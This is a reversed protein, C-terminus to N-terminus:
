QKHAELRTDRHYERAIVQTTGPLVEVAYASKVDPGLLWFNGVRNIAQHAASHYSNYGFTTAAYIHSDPIDRLATQCDNVFRANVRLDFHALVAPPGHAAPVFTLNAYIDTANTQRLKVAGAASSTPFIESLPLSGNWFQAYKGMLAFVPSFWTHEGNEFRMAGTWTDNIPTPTAAVLDNPISNLALMRAANQWLALNGGLTLSTGPNFNSRQFNGNNAAQTGYLNQYKRPGNVDSTFLAETMNATTAVTCIARLRTLYLNLNPILRTTPQAFNYTADTFGPTPPLVVTVGAFLDNADPRFASLARFAAVLPGPIWLDAYPFMKEFTQLFILADPTAIGAADMARFIQVYILVTFYMQSIPPVWGSCNETWKRTNCMLHDMYNLILFFASLNPVFTSVTPYTLDQFPNNAATKFILTEFEPAAPAFSSKPPGFSKKVTFRDSKAKSATRDRALEADREAALDRGQPVTAPNGIVPNSAPLDQASVVQDVDTSPM